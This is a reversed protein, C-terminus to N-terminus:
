GGNFECTKYVQYRRRFTETMANSSSRQSFSPCQRVLILYVLDCLDNMKIITIHCDFSYTVVNEIPAQTLTFDTLVRPSTIPRLWTGFCLLLLCSFCAAVGTASRTGCCCPRCKLLIGSWYSVISSTVLASLLAPRSDQWSITPTSKM